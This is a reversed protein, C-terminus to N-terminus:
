TCITNVYLEIGIYRDFCQQGSSGLLCSFGVHGDSLSLLKVFVNWAPLNQDNDHM